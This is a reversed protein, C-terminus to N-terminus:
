TDAEPGPNSTSKEMVEEGVIAKLHNRLGEELKSKGSISDEYFLVRFAAVDFPLVTGKRALLIIPKNLAHAYGVEFYVNANPPSIDAIILQSDIIQQAVDGIIIGPGYVEDARVVHVEYRRCVEKIVERYVDNYPESFQMVAFAQPKQSEVKFNSIRIDGSNRCWIGAQRPQSRPTPLNASAVHVRNVHLSIRSGVIRVELNYKRHGELNSRDGAIAYPVWQPGESGARRDIVPNMERIAYLTWDAGTIGASIQRGTDIEYALVLECGASEDIEDFFEIEATVRGDSLLQDCLILGQSPGTPRGGEKTDETGGAEQSLEIKRGKFVIQGGM